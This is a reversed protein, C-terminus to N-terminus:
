KTERSIANINEEIMVTYKRNPSYKCLLILPILVFIWYNYGLGLYYGYQNNIFLLDVLGVIIIFSVWISNEILTYRDGYFYIQSNRVGYKREFFLSLGFSTYMFLTSIVSLTLFGNPFWFNVFINEKVGYVLMYANSIFYSAILIGLPIFSLSHWLYRAVKGRKNIFPPQFFLFLYIFYQLAIIQFVNSPLYQYILGALDYGWADTIEIVATELTAIFLFVYLNLVIKKLLADPKKHRGLVVFHNLFIGALLSIKLIFLFTSNSFFTPLAFIGLKAAFGFIMFTISFITLLRAVVLVFFDPIWIRNNIDNPLEKTENNENIKTNVLRPKINSIISRTFIGISIFFGIIGILIYVLGNIQLQYNVVRGKERSSLFDDYFSTEVELVESITKSLFNNVDDVTDNIFALAMEETVEEMGKVIIQFDTVHDVSNKNYLFKCTFYTGDTASGYSLTCIYSNDSLSGGFIFHYRELGGLMGAVITGSYSCENFYLLSDTKYFLILADINNDTKEIQYYELGTVLDHGISGKETVKERLDNYTKGYYPKNNDISINFLVAGIVTTILMFASISATVIRKVLAKKKNVLTEYNRHDPMPYADLGTLSIETHYFDEIKKKDKKNPRLYGAEYFYLKLRNIGIKKSAEKLLLGKALRLEKIVVNYNNM